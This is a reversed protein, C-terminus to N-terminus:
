YGQALQYFLTQHVRWAQHIFCISGYSLFTGSSYHHNIMYALKDPIFSVMSQNMPYQANKEIAHILQTIIRKTVFLQHQFHQQRLQQARNFLLYSLSTLPKVRSFAIAIM